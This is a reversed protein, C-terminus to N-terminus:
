LKEPIFPNGQRFNGAKYFPRRSHLQRQFQEGPRIFSLSKRHQLLYESSGIGSGDEKLGSEVSKTLAEIQKRIQELVDRQDQSESLFDNSRTLTTSQTSRDQIDGSSGTFGGKAPEAEASGVPKRMGLRSKLEEFSEQEGPRRILVDRTLNQQRQPDVIDSDSHQESDTALDQRMRNADRIRDQSRDSSMDNEGKPSAKRHQRIGLQGPVLSELYSTGRSREAYLVQQIEKMRPQFSPYSTQLKQLDSGGAATDQDLSAQAQPLSDLGLLGNSVISAGQRARHDIRMGMPRFVESRGPIMTTVTQTPSYFPQVRYKNSRNGFDESGATDRLFSNLASSGLTGSFSTTSRYPVSGRFHMGRRVNGTILLNGTPDIPNPTNVLGSHYTSPPITGYGAPNSAGRSEVSWITTSFNSVFMATTLVFLWAKM